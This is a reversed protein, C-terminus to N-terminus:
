NLDFLNHNGNRSCYTTPTKIRDNGPWTHRMFRYLVLNCFHIELQLKFQKESTLALHIPWKCHHIYLQLYVHLSAIVFCTWITSKKTFCNSYDTIYINQTHIKLISLRINILQVTLQIIVWIAIIFLVRRSIIHGRRCTLSIFM